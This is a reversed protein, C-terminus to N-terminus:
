RSGFKRELATAGYFGALAMVVVAAVVGLVPLNFYQPITLQGMDTSNVFPEFVQSLEGYFFMGALLGGAYVMGDVKGTAVAV